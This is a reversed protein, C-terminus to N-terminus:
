ASDATARRYLAEASFNRPGGAEAAKILAVIRRNVPADLGHKEALAVIEGNLYDIETKRGAEFDQWMSSRADADIAITSRMAREYLWNPARLIALIAWQPVATFSKLPIGAAKLARMAERQCTALVLRAPRQSLQARIPSDGLANVPNMLNTVLKGWQYARMDDCLTLPFQARQFAAALAETPHGTEIYLHGETGRHYVGDKVVVNFPVMGRVIHQDPCIRELIDGNRVGNQFSVILTDPKCHQAIVGAADKTDGSKVTVLVVDAANLTEPSTEIAVEDTGVAVRNGLYDSCLLGSAAITDALHQRGLLTVENGSSALLGGLYAGISGAGYIYIM